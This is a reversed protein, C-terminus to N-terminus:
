PKKETIAGAVRLNLLLHARSRFMGGKANRYFRRYTTPTIQGSGRLETLLSRQARFRTMWRVM